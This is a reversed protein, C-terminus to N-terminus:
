AGAYGFAHMVACKAATAHPPPILPTLPDRELPGEAAM